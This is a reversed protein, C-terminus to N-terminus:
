ESSRIMYIGESEDVIGTRYFLLYTDDSKKVVFNITKNSNEFIVLINWANIAPASGLPILRWSGVDSVVTFRYQGADEVVPMSIAQVKGNKEIFLSIASTSKMFDEGLGAKTSTDASFIVWRGYLLEVNPKERVVSKRDCATLIAVLFFTFIACWRRNM